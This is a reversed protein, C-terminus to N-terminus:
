STLTLCLSWAFFIVCICCLLIHCISITFLTFQVFFPLPQQLLLYDIPQWVLTHCVHIPIVVLSWTSSSYWHNIFYLAWRIKISILTVLLPSTSSSSQLSCFPSDHYPIINFINDITSLFSGCPSMISEVLLCAIFSTYHILFLFCSLRCISAFISCCFFYMISFTHHVHCLFCQPQCILSFTSHFIFFTAFSTHSVHYLFHLLRDIVSLFTTDCFFCSLWHIPLSFTISSDWWLMISTIFLSLFMSPYIISPFIVHYITHFSFVLYVYKIHGLHEISNIMIYRAYQYTRQVKYSVRKKEGAEVLLVELLDM